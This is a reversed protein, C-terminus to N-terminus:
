CVRPRVRCSFTWETTINDTLCRTPILMPLQYTAFEKGVWIFEGNLEIAIDTRAVHAGTINENTMADYLPSLIM